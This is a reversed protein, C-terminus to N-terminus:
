RALMRIPVIAALHNPIRQLLEAAERGGLFKHHHHRLPAVSLRLGACSHIRNRTCRYTYGNPANHQSECYEAHETLRHRLCIRRVSAANGGAIGGRVEYCMVCSGAAASSTRASDCPCCRVPKWGRAAPAGHATGRPKLWHSFGRGRTPRAGPFLAGCAARLLSRRGHMPHIATMPTAFSAMAAVSQLDDCPRVRWGGIRQYRSNIGTTDRM